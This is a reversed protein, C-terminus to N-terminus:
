FPWLSALRSYVIPPKPPKPPKAGANRLMNVAAQVKRRSALELPTRGDPGPHNISARNRREAVQLLLKLKRKDQPSDLYYGVAGWLAIGIHAGAELLLKVMEYEKEYDRPDTEHCMVWELVTFRQVNKANVDAGSTLLVRLVDVDALDAAMELPRVPASWGPVNKLLRNVNAGFEILYRIMDLRQAPPLKRALILAALPAPHEQTGPANVNAGAAILARAVDMHGQAIAIQLSTGLSARKVDPRVGRELLLKVINVHGKSSAQHLPHSFPGMHNRSMTAGANLLARTAAVDGREIAYFLPRTRRPHGDPDAKHKILTKIQAVNYPPAEVANNHSLETKPAFLKHLETTAARSKVLNEYNRSRSLTTSGAQAVITRM